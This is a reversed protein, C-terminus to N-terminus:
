AVSNSQIMVEQIKMYVKHSSFCLCVNAVMFTFFVLCANLLLTNYKNFETVMEEPRLEKAMVRSLVSVLLQEDKIDKMSRWPTLKMDEAAQDIILDIKKAVTSKLELQSDVKGKRQRQDKVEKNEWMTFIQDQLEWVM